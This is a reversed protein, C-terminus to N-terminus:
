CKRNENDVTKTAKGCRGLGLPKPLEKKARDGACPIQRTTMVEVWPDEDGHGQEPVQNL